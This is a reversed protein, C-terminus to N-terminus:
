SAKERFSHQNISELYGRLRPQEDWNYFKRFPCTKISEVDATSINIQCGFFHLKRYIELNQFTIKLMSSGNIFYALKGFYFLFGITLLSISLAQFNIPHKIIEQLITLPPIYIAIFVLLVNIGVVEFIYKDNQTWSGLNKNAIKVAEFIMWFSPYGSIKVVLQEACRDFSVKKDNVNFSQM